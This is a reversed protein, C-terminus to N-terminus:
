ERENGASERSRRGGSGKPGNCGEPDFREVTGVALLEGQGFARYGKQEGCRTREIVSRISAELSAADQEAFRRQGTVAKSAIEPRNSIVLTAKKAPPKDRM